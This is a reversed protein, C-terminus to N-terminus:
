LGQKMIFIHTMDITPCSPHSLLIIYSEAQQIIREFDHFEKRTLFIRQEATM